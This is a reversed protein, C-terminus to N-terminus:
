PDTDPRLIPAHQGRALHELLQRTIPQLEEVARSCLLLRRTAWADTLRVFAIPMTRRCRRAAIEPVIGFGVGDAAMRCIGEFTRLHVRPQLRHGARAAHDDVHQQLAGAFGIQDEGLLQSFAIRREGAMPHTSSMVAVLRDVAFPSTTLPSTEIADSVIGIEALGGAIAKVIESSPRESLDVDIRPHAALWPGLRGPLFEAMAATNALLRITARVGRAHESLEAQMTAVQRLVLRAHHALAEGARTASVGRRGRDLLSVGGSAEMQRLRESAAALSLNAASAGHTISGAEVVALFLRLDALDFRM